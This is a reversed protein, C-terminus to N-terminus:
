GGCKKPTSKEKGKGEIVVLDAQQVNVDAAGTHRSHETQRRLADLLTLIPLDVVTSHNEIKIILWWKSEQLHIGTLYWRGPLGSRATIDM